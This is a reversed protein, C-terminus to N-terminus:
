AFLAHSHSHLGGDDDSIVNGNLSVLELVGEVRESDFSRRVPSFVLIEAEGCGGIGSFTASCIGEARCVELIGAVVEDGRDMRIYFVGGYNRYEM